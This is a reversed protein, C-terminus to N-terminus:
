LQLKLGIMYLGNVDDAFAFEKKDTFLNRMNLWLQFAENIQYSTKINCVIKAAIPTIGDYNFYETGTYYYINTNINVKKEPHYNCIVGGYVTPTARHYLDRKIGIPIDDNNYDWNEHTIFNSLVTMQLTAFANIQLKSWYAWELSGSVGLQRSVLDINRKQSIRYDFDGFWITDTHATSFDFTKSYFVSFDLRSNTGLKNRFGIEYNDMTALKLDQNKLYENTRVFGLYTREESQFNVHYDFMSPGRNARSVVLRLMSENSIIYTSAFQYSLYPTNPVNYHDRRMAIIFRLRETPAYETRLYYAYNDLEKLGNFLPQNYNSDVFYPQENYTVRTYQMGPQFRFKKWHFDYEVDAVMNNIDFKYGNHGFANNNIGKNHAFHAKLGKYSVKFDEYHTQSKRITYSVNNIDLYISQSASEQYGGTLEISLDKTPKLNVWLNAGGNERGLTCEPYRKDAYQVHDSLSDSPFYRYHVLDYYEDQFRDFNQYNGSLRINVSKKPNYSVSAYGNMTNTSGGQMVVDSSLKKKTEKKTIINVVGSMANPGYLATSPGRVVEIRDIDVLGIPLAEWFTGGQFYNYVPRNDIMVLTITNESDFLYLGPPTNDNGRIHMDYNGNTKQRVIMGPILRLAEPITLVGSQEIDKATIVDVDLPSEYYDEDHKAASKITPNLLFEYLEEISSLKLRKVLLMLDELPMEVLQDQTLKMLQEKDMNRVDLTDANQSWCSLTGSLLFVFLLIVVNFVKMM